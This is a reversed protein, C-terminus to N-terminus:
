LWEDKNRGGNTDNREGGDVDKDGDQDQFSIAHKRDVQTVAGEDQPLIESSRAELPILLSMAKVSDLQESIAQEQGGSEDRAVYSDLQRDTTTQREGWDGQERCPILNPM